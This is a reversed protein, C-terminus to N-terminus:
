VTTPIEMDTMYEQSMYATTMSPKIRNNYEIETAPTLYGGNIATAAISRSDMLAVAAMQGEAPKSGERSEFNRTTHRISFGNHSPIDGAGFCPGCFATKVNVGSKLLEAIAGKRALDIYIPQSGPYVSMSLRNGIDKGRIINVAEMINDYLGGACGAIIAQDVKIKGNVIKNTLKFQGKGKLLRNGEEECKSLIEYPNELLERITYVNSPHFPM